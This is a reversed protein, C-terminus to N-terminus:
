VSRSGAAVAAVVPAEMPPLLRAVTQAAPLLVPLEELAQMVRARGEARGALERAREVVLAQVAREAVVLAVGVAAAKPM